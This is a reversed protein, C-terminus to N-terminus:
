SIQNINIISSYKNKIKAVENFLEGNVAKTKDFSDEITKVFDRMDYLSLMLTEDIERLIAIQKLALDKEKILQMNKEFDSNIEVAESETVTKIAGSEVAKDLADSYAHPVLPNDALKDVEIIKKAAESNFDGTEVSKKLSELFPSAM